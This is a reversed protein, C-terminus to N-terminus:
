LKRLPATLPLPKDRYLNETLIQLNAIMQIAWAEFVAGSDIPELEPHAAKFAKLHETFEDALKDARETLDRQSISESM